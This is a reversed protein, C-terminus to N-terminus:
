LTVFTYTGNNNLIDFSTLPFGPGVINPTTSGLLVFHAFKLQLLVLLKFWFSTIVFHNKLVQYM